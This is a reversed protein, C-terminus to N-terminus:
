PEEKGSLTFDFAAGGLYQSREVAIRQGHASLIEKCIYLGLGSGSQTRSEDLKFFSEFVKQRKDEPIGPGSDEIRVTVLQNRLNTGTTIAILGKDPTFKIANNLLNYVVRAISEKDAYALLQGSSDKYMELQVGLNKERLLPEMSSLTEHLMQNIDFFEKKLHDRQSFTAVETMSNTLAQLRDVEQKVLALYHESKEKPITGDLLASIFGKISTLPTRLDHAISSVFVRRDNEQTELREIMHNVTEVMEALEEAVFFKTPADSQLAPMYIRASLDGGTVKKAADSLLRIPRVLSHTMLSFLFLSLSFAILVPVALANTLMWITQQNVNVPQHLVLFLSGDEVIPYTATLWTLGPESFLNSRVGSTVESSFVESSVQRLVPSMRLKGNELTELQQKSAEPIATYYILQGNKDVIWLFTNSSVSMAEVFNEQSANLAFGLDLSVVEGLSTLGEATSQATRLLTQSNDLIISQSMRQYYVGCLVAFVLIIGLTLSLIARVYVSGSAKTFKM